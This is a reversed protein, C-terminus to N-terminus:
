VLAFDYGEGRKTMHLAGPRGLDHFIGGIFDRWFQRPFEACQRVIEAIREFSDHLGSVQNRLSSRGLVCAAPDLQDILSRLFRYFDIVLQALEQARLTLLM